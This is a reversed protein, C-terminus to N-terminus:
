FWRKRRFWYLMGLPLGILLALQLFFVLRSAFPMAVFNEGFMGTIFTLPLFISALITLQKMIDNTRDALVSHYADMTNTLLDRETELQEFARVLHDYVDRLYVSTQEDFRPDGHRLLIALMDREPALIKRMSTLRRRIRLLRTLENGKFSGIIQSELTEIQDSLNDIIPFVDDVLADILLYYLFPATRQAPLAGLSFRKWTAELPGISGKHLTILCNRTLFANLQEFHLPRTHAHRDSIAQAVIFLHDGYEDVKSRHGPQNCDEIALSHLGFRQQLEAIEGDTFNESDIWRLEDEGPPAASALGESQSWGNGSITLTRVM